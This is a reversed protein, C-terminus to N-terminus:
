NFYGGSQSLDVIAYHDTGPLDNHADRVKVTVTNTDGALFNLSHNPDDLNSNVNGPIGVSGSQKWALTEHIINTYWNVPARRILMGNGNTGTGDEHNAHEVTTHAAGQPTQILHNWWGQPVIPQIIQVDHTLEYGIQPSLTPYAPEFETQDVHWFTASAWDWQAKCSSMPVMGDGRFIFKDGDKWHDKKKTKCKSEHCGRWSCVTASNRCYIEECYDFFRCIWYTLMWLQVDNGHDDKIKTGAKGDGGVAPTKYINKTKYHDVYIDSVLGGPHKGCYKYKVYHYDTSWHPDNEFDAQGVMLGGLYPSGTMQNSCYNMVRVTRWVAKFLVNGIIDGTNVTGSANQCTWVGANGAGSGRFPCQSAGWIFNSEKGVLGLKFAQMSILGGFSHTFQMTVALDTDRGIICPYGPLDACHYDKLENLISLQNYVRESSNAYWFKGYHCQGANIGLPDTIDNNSVHGKIFFPYFSDRSFGDIGTDTEFSWFRSSGCPQGDQTAPWDKESTNIDMSSVPTTPYLWVTDNQYGDGNAMINMRFDHSKGGKGKFKYTIINTQKKLGKHNGAGHIWNCKLKSGDWQQPPMTPSHTPTRTPCPGKCNQIPKYTGNKGTNFSSYIKNITKQDSVVKSREIKDNEFDQLYEKSNRILEMEEKTYEEEEEREEKEYIREEPYRNKADFAKSELHFEKNLYEEAYKLKRDFENVFPFNNGKVSFEYSTLNQQSLYQNDQDTITEFKNIKKCGGENEEDYFFGKSLNHPVNIEKKQDSTVFKLDFEAGFVGGKFGNLSKTVCILLTGFDGSEIVIKNAEDTCVEKSRRQTEQDLDDNSVEVGQYIAHKLQAYGIQDEPISCDISNEATHYMRDNKLYYGLDKGRKGDHSEMKGEVTWEGNEDNFKNFLGTGTYQYFNYNDHKKLTVEGSFEEPLMNLFKSGANETSASKADSAILYTAGMVGVSALASVILKM